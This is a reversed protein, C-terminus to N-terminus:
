VSLMKELPAYAAKIMEPSLKIEGSMNELCDRLDEATTKKMNTCILEESLIYFKKEPYADALREVVGAETGIIFEDGGDEAAFKLIESTSGIFDAHRLVEAECEPHALLKATPHEEKVAFVDAETRMKHVPCFGGSFIFKKEPVQRAVYAGLNKDPVFIIEENKLSRVVRVANSSTCCIDSVAKCEASSNVYCVVAASPHEAKLKRIINPTIMDAMLCGADPRPMLVTKEPSLIKASEGMFKVGCFVITDEPANKAKKSLEFSDGVFDALKQIELREYYHALILARKEAKLRKIQEALLNIETKM